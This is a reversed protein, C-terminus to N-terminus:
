HAFPVHHAVTEKRPFGQVVHRPAVELQLVFPSVTTRCSSAPFCVAHRGRAAAGEWGGRGDMVGLMLARFSGQQREGRERVQVKEIGRERDQGTRVEGVM